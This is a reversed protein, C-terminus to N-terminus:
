ILDSKKWKHGDLIVKVKKTENGDGKARCVDRKTCMCHRSNLLNM